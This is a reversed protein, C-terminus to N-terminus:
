REDVNVVDLTEVYQPEVSTSIGFGYAGADSECLVSAPFDSM